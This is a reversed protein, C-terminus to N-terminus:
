GRVSLIPKLLKRYGEVKSGKLYAEFIANQVGTSFTPYAHITAIIDSVTLNHQMALAIEALLEGGTAGVIHAGYITEGKEDMILKIFGEPAGEAQARDIEGYPFRSVSIKKHTAKAEEETMGVRGAEPDCFTVWPLVRYDVKKKGIPLLSNQLAVGAQYAAVHTFLYGGIVDGIATINKATTQLYEDVKIGKESYEIGANELGLNDCNPTRGMALLIEDAEFTRTEAGQKVEVVKKGEPHRYAKKARAGTIIKIGERILVESICQSTEPEEKPLIREPGQIITVQSGLRAFSQGLEVGIPGAGIVILSPPLKTLDFVEENTLFGVDQLGEIKPVAPRSGTAIIFSQSSLIQGDLDLEHPSKFTAQGFKVEVGEVYVGEAEKVKEIVGAIRESVKGMDVTLDPPVLGFEAVERATKVMKAVHIMSKSPVCGYHLCDGGLREKDLLATRAGFARGLRAAVLGGSGGGIVVLDYMYKAM